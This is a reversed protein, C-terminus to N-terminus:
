PMSLLEQYKAMPWFENATSEEAQDVSVRLRELSKEGQEGIFTAKEPNKTMKEAQHLVAELKDSERATEQYLLDLKEAENLLNKSKSGAAKLNAAAQALLSIQKALAPLVSTKVMNIATKYEIEKTKIYNELKIEMKALVERETLVHTRQMLEIVDKEKFVSMAAPTNKANPLGLKQAEQHWDDAYGNGEFRIRRTEQFVQQLVKIAGEKVNKGRYSKLRQEIVFYGYACLQNLTTAAESPNHSSGVARFEFKNGTFAIPSTRNRDSSDRAIRPLNRVGMNIGAIAKETVKGLSIIEDILETLYEGLYVSMIAPPAENAGLRHDNGADAVSARLLGSFKDIGLFL